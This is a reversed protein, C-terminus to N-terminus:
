QPSFYFDDPDDFSDPLLTCPSTIELASAAYCYSGHACYTMRGTKKNVRVQTILGYDTQGKRMLSEPAEEAGANKIVRVSCRERGFCTGQTSMVLLAFVAFKQTQRVFFM